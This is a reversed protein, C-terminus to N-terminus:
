VASVLSLLRFPFHAFFPYFKEAACIVRQQNNEKNGRDSAITELKRRIMDWKLKGFSREDETQCDFASAVSRLSLWLSNWREEEYKERRWDGGGGVCAISKDSLYCDVSWLTPLLLWVVAVM